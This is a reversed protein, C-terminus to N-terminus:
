YGEKLKVNHVQSNMDVYMIEVEDCTLDDCDDSFYGTMDDPIHDRDYMFDAEEKSIIGKKATDYFDLFEDDDFDWSCKNFIVNMDKVKELIKLYQCDSESLNLTRYTSWWTEDTELNRFYTSVIYFPERNKIEREVEVTIERLKDMNEM